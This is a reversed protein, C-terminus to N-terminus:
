PLSRRLAGALRLRRGAPGARESLHRRLLLRPPVVAVGRAAAACTTPPGSGAILVIVLDIAPSATACRGASEATPNSNPRSGAGARTSSSAWGPACTATRTITGSWSRARSAVPWCCGPASRRPPAPLVAVRTLGNWRADWCGRRAAPPTPTPSSASSATARPRAAATIPSTPGGPPTSSLTALMVPALGADMLALAPEIRTELPGLVYLADVPEHPDIRPNAVFRVCVAVLRHRSSGLLAGIAVLVRTRRRRRGRLGPHGAM